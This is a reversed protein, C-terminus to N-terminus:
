AADRHYYNLLGGLRERRHVRGNENAPAPAGKLLINGLGQPVLAEPARARTLALIRSIRTRVDTPRRTSGVM